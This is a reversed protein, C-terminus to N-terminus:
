DIRVLNRRLDISPIPTCEQEIPHPADSVVREDREQGENRTDAKHHNEHETRLTATPRPAIPAPVADRMEFPHLTLPRYLGDDDPESEDYQTGHEKTSNKEKELMGIGVLEARGSKLGARFSGFQEAARDRGAYRRTRDIDCTCRPM